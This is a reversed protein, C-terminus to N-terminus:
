KREPTCILQYNPSTGVVRCFDLEGTVTDLRYMGVTTHSSVVTFRGIEKSKCQENCQIVVREPEKSRTNNADARELGFLLLVLAFGAIWNVKANIRM